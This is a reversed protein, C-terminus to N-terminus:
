SNQKLSSVIWSCIKSLGSEYGQIEVQSWMGTFLCISFLVCQKVEFKVFDSIRVYTFLLVVYLTYMCDFKAVVYMRLSRITHVAHLCEGSDM